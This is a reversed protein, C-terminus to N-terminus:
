VLEKKDAMAIAVLLVTDAIVPVVAGIVIFIMFTNTIGAAAIRIFWLAITLSLVWALMVAGSRKGGILMVSASIGLLALALGAIGSIVFYLTQADNMNMMGVYQASMQRMFDVSKTSDPNKAASEDIKRNTEEIMKQTEPNNMMAKLKGPMTITSFNSFSSYLAFLLTIIGVVIAWVPAKKKEPGAEPVPITESIKVDDM